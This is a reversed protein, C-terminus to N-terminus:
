VIPHKKEKKINSKIAVNIAVLIPIAAAITFGFAYSPIRDKLVRDIIEIGLFSIGIGSGDVQDLVTWLEIGKGLFLLGFMSLLVVLFWKM